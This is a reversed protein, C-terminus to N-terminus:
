FDEIPREICEIYSPVSVRKSIKKVMGSRISSIWFDMILNLKQNTTGNNYLWYYYYCHIIQIYTSSLFHNTNMLILQCFVKHNAKPSRHCIFFSGTTQNWWGMIVFGVQFFSKTGEGIGHDWNRKKCAEGVMQKLM